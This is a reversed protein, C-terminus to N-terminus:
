ASSGNDLFDYIGNADNDSIEIYGESLLIKGQLDMQTPESGIIRELDLDSYGAEVTDSCGDGDSDLDLNNPVGDNDLDDFGEQIDEIGDNDDDLDKNNGISDNDTDNWEYKYLPFKDIYNDYGDGDCDFNNWQEDPQSNVFERDFDCRDQPNTKSKVIEQWNTLGDGDCDFGRIPFITISEFRFDCRNFINTGDRLENGNLVGDGDCDQAQWALSTTTNVNSLVYSCGNNQNTNDNVEILNSVGDGDCDNQSTVVQTISNLNYSCANSPDTNDILEDRYLVGDGDCDRGISTISVTISNVLYSCANRPDTNDIREHGNLVGDGDCDLNNWSSSLNDFVVGPFFYDCPDSCITGYLIESACCIGDGDIDCSLTCDEKLKITTSSTFSGCLSPVEYFISYSGHTSNQFDIKGATPNIDLGVPLSSFTGSVSGSISPRIDNDDPCFEAGFAYGYNFTSTNLSSITISITTSSVCGLTVVPYTITEPTTYTINYIRPVSNTPNIIGTIQDISLGSPSSTFTGGLTIVTPSALSSNETCFLNSSYSFNSNDIAKIEITSSSTDQCDGATTYGITYSGVSSLSPIINGTTLDINLGM